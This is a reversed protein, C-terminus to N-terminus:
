FLTKLNAYFNVMVDEFNSQNKGGTDAVTSPFAVQVYNVVNFVSGQQGTPHDSNKVTIFYIDYTTNADAKITDLPMYRTIQDHSGKYPLADEELRKVHDYTGSGTSPDVVSARTADLILGNVTVEINSYFDKDTIELGLETPVSAGLDLANANAVTGTAGRYARDIVLTSGTTGTIAQYLDGNLSVWDGVGVGHAASTTFSTGGYTVAVTASTAFAAGAVNHSIKPIAIRTLTPNAADRKVIYEVLKVLAEYATDDESLQVSYREKYFPQRNATIVNSRDIIQISIEDGRSVSAPFNLSGAALTRNYGIGYIGKVPVTYAKSVIDKIGAIDIPNSLQCGDATGIGIVIEKGTFSAAPVKGTADAGGDTILAMKNANNASNPDIGYVGLAGVALDAPNLATEATASSKSAGYNVDTTVLVKRHQGM